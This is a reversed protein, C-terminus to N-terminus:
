LYAKVFRFYLKKQATMGKLLTRCIHRYMGRVQLIEEKRIIDGSFNARMVIDMVKDLEEKDIWVFQETVKQTFDQNMCDVSEPMGAFELVAYLDRFIEPVSQKARRRLIAERRLFLGTAALILLVLMMGATGIGASGFIRGSGDEKKGSPFPSNQEEEGDQSQETHIENSEETSFEEQNERDNETQQSIDASEGNGSIMQAGSDYAPTTEFPIWGFNDVYIEAWAHARGDQVGATWGSGDWAFDAPPVTFGTVYRAPIGYMRMLLVSATAFHVCYGEHQEFLFYEAFDMDEPFRGVQPNYSANQSLLNRITECAEELSGCPNEECFEKLRMLRDEPYDLYNKYVYAKYTETREDLAEGFVPGLQWVPYYAYHHEEEGSTRSFYPAYPYRADAAKEGFSVSLESPMDYGNFRAAFAARDYFIDAAPEADRVQEWKEPTYRSGTYVKLYLNGEPEQTQSVSFLVEGTNLFFDTDNITGTSVGGSAISSKEGFKPALRLMEQILSTQQIRVRTEEKGDFVPALVPEALLYGAALLFFAFVGALLASKGLVVDREGGGSVLFGVTSFFMCFVGIGDPVQGFIFAASVPLAMWLVALYRGTDTCLCWTFVACQIFIVLLLAYVVEQSVRLSGGAMEGNVAYFFTQFIEEFGSYIKEANPAAFLGAALATVAALMLRHKRTLCLVGFWLGSLVVAANLIFVSHPIGTLTLATRMWGYIGLIMYLVPIWVFAAAERGANGTEMSKEWLRIGTDKKKKKM